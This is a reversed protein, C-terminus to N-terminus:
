PGCYALSPYLCRSGICEAPLTCGLGQSEDCVEGDPAPPICISSSPDCTGYGDCEMYPGGDPPTGCPSGYPVGEILSCHLTVDCYVNAGACPTGERGPAAGIGDGCSDGLGALAVCSGIGDAGFACYGACVDQVDCVQGIPVIKGCKDGGDEEFGVCVNGSPCGCPRPKPACVGCIGTSLDCQQTACAEHFVCTAGPPSRGPPLCDVPLDRAPTSCNTSYQCQGIEQADFVVNPDTAIVECVLTSRQNCQDYSTWEVPDTGQCLAERACVANAWSACVSAADTDIKGADVPPLFFSSEGTCAPIAVVWAAIAVAVLGACRRMRSSGVAHTPSESSSCSGRLLWGIESVM